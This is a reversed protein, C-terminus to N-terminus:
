KLVSGLRVAGRTVICNNYQLVLGCGNLGRLGTTDYYLKGNYQSVTPCYGLLIKAGNKKENKKRKKKKKESRGAM